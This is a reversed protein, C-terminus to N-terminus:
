PIAFENFGKRYRGNTLASDKDIVVFGYKQQWCDRCLAYFEDYSMDTNVHDNYVHKLNTGDQKFLILLNANDRILHKPIRAYTQCLYFCDVNAHRGMSFYDRVADQKDCAVDDFIFISNPRAESPAVVDSNNSFTFYDIEDISKFLNELYQYKPQRLSKSYVYVNEFRVGNPSELLSILVNTKGCNSPGCIIARITDPLMEGHKRKEVGSGIRSKADCNTVRIALPQLVFKM